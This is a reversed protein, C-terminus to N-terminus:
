PCWAAVAPTIVVSRSVPNNNDAPSTYSIRIANTITGINQAIEVTRNIDPLAPLARIAAILTNNLTGNTCIQKSFRDMNARDSPPYYDRSSPDLGECPGTAELTGAGSCWNYAEALARIAAVDADVLADRDNITTSGLLGFSAVGHMAAAMAVAFALIVTGVLVEALSFGSSSRRQASRLCAAECRTPSKMAIM